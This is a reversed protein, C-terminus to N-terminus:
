LVNDRCPTRKRGSTSADHVHGRPCSNSRSNLSRSGTQLHMGPMARRGCPRLAHHTKGKRSTKWTTVHMSAATRKRVSHVSHLSSINTAFLECLLPHILQVGQRQSPLPYQLCSRHTSSLLHGKKSQTRYSLSDRLAVRRWKSLSLSLPFPPFGRSM